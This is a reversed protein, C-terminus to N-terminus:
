HFRKNKNFYEVAEPVSRNAAKEVLEWGKARAAKDALPKDALMRGLHFMAPAYGQAAAREFCDQSKSLDRKTSGNKKLYFIGLADLARPEGSQAAAELLALCREPDIPLCDNKNFYLAALNAQAASNGGDSAKKLWEVAKSCERYETPGKLYFTGLWSQADTEGARAALLCCRHAQQFNKEIFFRRGLLYQQRPPMAAITDSLLWEIRDFKVAVWTQWIELGTKLSDMNASLDKQAAALSDLSRVVDQRLKKLAKDNVGARDVRCMFFPKPLKESEAMIVAESEADSVLKWGKKQFVLKTRHGVGHGGDGPFAVVFNGNMDSVTPNAGAASVAVNELPFGQEDLVLGRLIPQQGEMASAFLSFTLMGAICLNPRHNM